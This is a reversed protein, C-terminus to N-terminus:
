RHRLRIKEQFEPHSVEKGILNENAWERLGCQTNKGEFFINEYFFLRLFTLNLQNLITFYQNDIVCKKLM